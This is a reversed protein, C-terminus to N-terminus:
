ENIIGGMTKLVEDYINKIPESNDEALKRCDEYEPKAKILKGKYYAKKVSVKGYITDVTQFERKLKTRSIKYERIGLTTTEKFIIEKIDEKNEKRCLVSLIVGLREKKMLIPIRYVDLAGKNFLREIIYEYIEPNMDDINCELVYAEDKDETNIHLEKTKKKGLYVRLVNPIETDRGGVGYGIKEITFDKMDSFEDVSSALIAAGTPTTTEFPVIGTKVPIGKLIEVTAPAPVPILGHACKVFGGGLEVSSAMVKDVKLYDLCIAAGVIDVISDVAGVEHFHVEYLPKGHVKAEAEAVKRFMNLSMKKVNDNLESSNIIKEIHELNRHVHHNHSHSHSHVDHHNHSHNHDQSHEHTYGDEHIHEHHTKTQGHEEDCCAEDNHKLIVDVKTGEIGKRSEKGVKIEFESDMRLKSLERILFDKDVGLDIMAGLNMDGSIGAFCDYYLVKM